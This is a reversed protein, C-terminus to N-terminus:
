LCTMLKDLPMFDPVFKRGVEERISEAIAPGQNQYHYRIGLSALKTVAKEAAISYPAMEVAEKLKEMAQDTKGTKILFNAM